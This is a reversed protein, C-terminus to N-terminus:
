ATALELEPELEIGAERAATQIIREFESKSATAGNVGRPWVFIHTHKQTLRQIQSRTLPYTPIDIFAQTNEAPFAAGFQENILFDASRLKSKRPELLRWIEFALEKEFVLVMYDTDSIMAPSFGSGRDLEIFYGTKKPWLVVDALKFHRHTFELLAM